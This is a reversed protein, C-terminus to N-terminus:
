PFQSSSASVNLEEKNLTTRISAGKKSLGKNFKILDDKFKHKIYVEVHKSNFKNLLVIIIEEVIRDLENNQSIISNLINFLSYDIFKTRM